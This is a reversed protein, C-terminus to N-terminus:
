IRLLLMERKQTMWTRQDIVKGGGLFLTQLSKLYRQSGWYDGGGLWIKWSVGLLDIFDYLTNFPFISTVECAYELVEAMMFYHNSM